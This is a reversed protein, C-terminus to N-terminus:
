QREMKNICNHLEKIVSWWEKEILKIQKDTALGDLPLIYPTRPLKDEPVDSDIIIGINMSTQVTTGFKLEGLEDTNYYFYSLHHRNHYPTFVRVYRINEEM